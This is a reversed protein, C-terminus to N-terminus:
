ISSALFPTHAVGIFGRQNGVPCAVLVITYVSLTEKRAGFEREKVTQQLRFIRYSSV